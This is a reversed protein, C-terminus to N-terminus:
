QASSKKITQNQSPQNNQGLRQRYQSQYAQSQYGRGQSPRRGAYQGQRGGVFQLTNTPGQRFFQNYRHNASNVNSPHFVPKKRDSVLLERLEKNDKNVEALKKLFKKGFIEGKAKSLAKLCKKDSLLDVSDPMTTALLAKRRETNFLFHANGALVIARQTLKIVDAPDMGKKEKKIRDAESWLLSLPGMVDLIRLQTNIKSKELKSNWKKGRLFNKKFFRDTKLGKLKKSTPIPWGKSMDQRIKKTVGKTAYKEIYNVIHSPVKSKSTSMSEPNFTSGKDSDSSEGSSNSDSSESDSSSSSSSSSSSDVKKRKKKNKNGSKRKSNKNEVQSSVAGDHEWRQRVSVETEDVVSMFDDQPTDDEGSFDLSKEVTKRHTDEAEASMSKDIAVVRHDVNGVLLNDRYVRLEERSPTIKGEPIVQLQASTM